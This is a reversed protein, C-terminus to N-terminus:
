SHIRLENEDDLGTVVPVPQGADECATLIAKAIDMSSFSVALLKGIIIHILFDNLLSHRRKLKITNNILM